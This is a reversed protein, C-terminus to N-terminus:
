TSNSGKDAACKFVFITYRIYPIITDYSIIIKLKKRVAPGNLSGPCKPTKKPNVRQISINNYLFLVGM